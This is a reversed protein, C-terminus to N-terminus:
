NITQQHKHKNYLQSNSQKYDKTNLMNIENVFGKIVISLEM